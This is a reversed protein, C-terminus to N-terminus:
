FIFNFRSFTHQSIPLHLLFFNGKLADLQAPRAKSLTSPFQQNLHRLAYLQETISITKVLSNNDLHKIENVITTAEMLGPLQERRDPWISLAATCWCIAVSDLQVGATRDRNAHQTHM